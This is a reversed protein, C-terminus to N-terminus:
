VEEMNYDYVPLEVIKIDETSYVESLTELAKEASERTSYFESVRSYDTYVAYIITM